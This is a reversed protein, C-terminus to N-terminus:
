VRRSAATGGGAPGVWHWDGVPDCCGYPPHYAPRWQEYVALTSVGDGSGPADFDFYLGDPLLESIDMCIGLIRLPLMERFEAETLPPKQDDSM